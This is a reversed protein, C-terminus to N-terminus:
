CGTSFQNDLVVIGSVYQVTGKHLLRQKASRRYAMRMRQTSTKTDLQLIGQRFAIAGLSRTSLRCLGLRIQSVSFVSFVFDKKAWRQELTTHCACIIINLNLDHFDPVDSVDSM